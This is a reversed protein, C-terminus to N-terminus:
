SASPPERGTGKIVLALDALISTLLILPIGIMVTLHAANARTVAVGLGLAWAILWFLALLAMAPLFTFRILFWAYLIAGPRLDALSARRALRVVICVSAAAFLGLIVLSFPWSRLFGIAHGVRAASWIALVM